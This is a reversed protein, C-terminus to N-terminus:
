LSITCEKMKIKFSGNCFWCAADLMDAPFSFKCSNISSFNLGLHSSIHESALYLCICESNDMTVPDNMKFCTQLCDSMEKKDGSTTRIVDLSQQNM